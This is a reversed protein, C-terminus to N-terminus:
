TIKKNAHLKSHCSNCMSVLNNIDLGKSYDERLEVVHHVVEAIHGCEVCMGNDRLLAQRRVKKWQNSQYFETLKRDRGWRVVRDYERNAETREITELMAHSSCYKNPYQALNPCGCKRCPKKPRKAM